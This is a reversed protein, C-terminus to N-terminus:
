RRLFFKKLWGHSPFVTYWVGRRVPAARDVM